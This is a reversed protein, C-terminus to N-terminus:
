NSFYKKEKKKYFNYAVRYFPNKLNWQGNDVREDVWFGRMDFLYPVKYKQFLTLGAAVPVYSRCHTFGFQHEKQLKSVRRKMKWADYIKSLVPPRSSFFEPVWRINNERCISEILASQNKYKEKKEFSLLTFEYGMASLRCLYPLVQSQGLQDTMGDYSIFLVKRNM